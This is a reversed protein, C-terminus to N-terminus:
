VAGGRRRNERALRPKVPLRIQTAIRRATKDNERAAFAIQKMQRAKQRRDRISEGILRDGLSLCVVFRAM